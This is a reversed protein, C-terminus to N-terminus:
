SLSTTTTFTVECLLFGFAVLSPHIVLLFPTLKAVSGFFLWKLVAEYENYLFVHFLDPVATGVREQGM